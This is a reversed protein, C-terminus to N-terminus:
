FGKYVPATAVLDAPALALMALAILALIIIVAHILQNRSPRTMM